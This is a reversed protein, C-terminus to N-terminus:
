HLQETLDRLLGVKWLELRETQEAITKDFIKSSFSYFSGDQLRLYITGNHQMFVADDQM